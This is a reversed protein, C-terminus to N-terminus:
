GGYKSRLNELIRALEKEADIMVQNLSELKETASEMREVATNMANRFSDYDSSKWSQGIDTVTDRVGAINDKMTGNLRSIEQAMDRYIEDLEEKAAIIRSEMSM